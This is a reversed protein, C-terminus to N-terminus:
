LLGMVYTGVWCVVALLSTGAAIRPFLKFTDEEFLSVIAMVLAVLSLLMAMVGVSGYYTSLTGAGKYSLYIFIVYLIVLIVSVALSLIGKISQSKETFKYNNRRKAM